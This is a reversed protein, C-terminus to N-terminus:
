RVGAMGGALAFGSTQGSRISVTFLLVVVGALDGAALLYRDIGASCPFLLLGWAGSDTALYQWILPM